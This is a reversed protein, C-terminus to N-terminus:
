VYVEGRKPPSSSSVKRSKDESSSVSLNSNNELSNDEKESPIHTVDTLVVSNSTQTVNPSLAASFLSQTLPIPGLTVPNVAMTIPVNNLGVAKLTPSLSNKALAAVGSNTTVSVSGNTSLGEIEKIPSLVVQVVPIENSFDSASTPISSQNVHLLNQGFKNDIPEKSVDPTPIRPRNRLNTNVSGNIKAFGQRLKGGVQTSRRGVLRDYFGKKHNSYSNTPISVTSAYTTNNSNNAGSVLTSNTPLTTGDASSYMSNHRGQRFLGGSSYTTSSSRVSGMRTLQRQFWNKRREVVPTDVSEYDAYVDDPIVSKRRNSINAYLADSEKVKYFEASGKPEERRYHESGVTYPLDKPVVEDWYQDKLLEPHEEHMEDVIMYAAKIHRDILWNLEIDDDDEGFPGILVEAVKLWGIYFGFELVTIVPFFLDIDDAKKNLEDEPKLPIMQAGILAALFYTYVSLTVVQTYVIPINVTDYGILSGLRGRMDSMELLITQVMHDNTILLEKRARNIINTAWTLPLWYKTMPTKVELMEFIKKESEMLFGADVIHQLTPFRKKVRVSVHKLTIIYALVAYRVITRRMLRGREDAGPIAASVFLALTDPWPLLRYQEWWRKVVLTVYFGLVFSMPINQSKGRFYARIQEFIKQQPDTLMYRYTVNIAFYLFMYVILERWVLKYVSGKWKRLISWFCGFSSGNAVLRSYSVTM